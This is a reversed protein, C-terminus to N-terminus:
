SYQVQWVRVSCRIWPVFFMSNMSFSVWVVDNACACKCVHERVSVKVYTWLWSRQAFHNPHLASPFAKISLLNTIQHRMANWSSKPGHWLDVFVLASCYTHAENSDITMKAVLADWMISAITVLKSFLVILRFQQLCNKACGPHWCYRPNPMNPLRILVQCLCCNKYHSMFVKQLTLDLLAPITLNSWLYDVLKQYSQPSPQMTAVAQINGM